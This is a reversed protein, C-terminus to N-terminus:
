RNWRSHVDKRMRRSSILEDTINELVSVIEEHSANSNRVVEMIDSYLDNEFMDENIVRKVINNLDRETLKVVKKM